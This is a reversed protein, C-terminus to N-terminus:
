KTEEKNQLLKDLASQIEGAAPEQGKQRDLQKQLAIEEGKALLEDKYTNKIEARAESRAATLANKIM